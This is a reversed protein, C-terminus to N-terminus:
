GQVSAFIKMKVSCIKVWPLHDFIHGSCGKVATQTDKVSSKSVLTSKCVPRKQDSFTSNEDCDSM